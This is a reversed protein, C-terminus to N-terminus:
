DRRYDVRKVLGPIRGHRKDLARHGRGANRPLVLVDSPFVVPRADCRCRRQARALGRGPRARVRGLGDFVRVRGPRRRGRGLVLTFARALVDRRETVKGSSCRRRLPLRITGRVGDLRWFFREDDNGLLPRGIGVRPEAANETQADVAVPVGAPVTDERVVRVRQPPHPQHGGLVLQRDSVPRAARVHRARRLRFAPFGGVFRKRPALRASFLRAASSSTMSRTRRTARDRTEPIWARRRTGPGADTGAGPRPTPEAPGPPGPPPRSRRRSRRRFFAAPPVPTARPADRAAGRTM